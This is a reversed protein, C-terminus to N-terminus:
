AGFPFRGYVKAFWALRLLLPELLSEAACSVQADTGEIDRYPLSGGVFRDDESANASGATAEAAHRCM